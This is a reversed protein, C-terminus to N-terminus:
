QRHNFRCECKSSHMPRAAKERGHRVSSNAPCSAKGLHSRSTCRSGSARVSGSSPLASRSSTSSASDRWIDPSQTIRDPRFTGAAPAVACGDSPSRPARPVFTRHLLLKVNRTELVVRVRLRHCWRLRGVVVVGLRSWHVRSRSLHSRRFQNCGQYTTWRRNVPVHASVVVTFRVRIGGHTCLAIGAIRAFLKARM